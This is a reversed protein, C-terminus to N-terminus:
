KFGFEAMISNYTGDKKIQTLGKNFKLIVEESNVMDKHGILHVPNDRLPPEYFVFKDLPLNIESNNKVIYIAPIKSMAVFDLRGIILNRLNSIDKNVEIIKAGKKQLFKVLYHGRLVGIYKNKFKKSGNYEKRKLGILYSAANDYPDSYIFIKRREKVDSACILFAKGYLAMKYARKWPYFDFNVSIGVRKFAERVIYAHVGNHKLEKGVYPKWNFTVIAISEAVSHAHFLILILLIFIILKKM